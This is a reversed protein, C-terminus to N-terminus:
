LFQVKNLDMNYFAPVIKHEGKEILGKLLESQNSLTEVSKKANISAIVDLNLGMSEEYYLKDLSSSLKGPWTQKVKNVITACSQHAMVLTLPIKLIEAGFEVTEIVEPTIISGPIRFVFLKGLEMDFLIEPSVRSDVCCIIIAIPKQGGILSDIYEKSNNQVSTGSQIQFRKNGNKLQNLSDEINKILHM